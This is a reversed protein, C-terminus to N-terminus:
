KGFAHKGVLEMILLALSPWYLHIFNRPGGLMVLNRVLNVGVTKMWLMLLLLMLLLLMMM